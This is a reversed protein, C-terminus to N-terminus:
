SESFTFAARRLRTLPPVLEILGKYKLEHNLVQNAHARTIVYAVSMLLESGLQSLIMSGSMVVLLLKPRFTVMSRPPLMYRESQFPGLLLMTGPPQLSGLFNFLGQHCCSGCVESCVRAAALCRVWVHGWTATCIVKMQMAGIAAHNELM